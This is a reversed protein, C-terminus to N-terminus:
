ANMTGNRDLDYIKFAHQLEIHSTLANSINGTIESPSFHKKMEFSVEYSQKDPSINAEVM